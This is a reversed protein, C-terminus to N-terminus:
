RATLFRSDGHGGEMSGLFQFANEADEEGVMDGGEEFDDYDPVVKAFFRGGSVIRFM